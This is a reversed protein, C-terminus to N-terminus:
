QNVRNLGAYYILMWEGNMKAFRREMAYQGTKHMIREIVLASDVPLITSTFGSNAAIANQVVWNEETWRFNRDALTLSDANSPIGQIPFLIHAKQYTSDEHFQDYFTNFDALVVDVSEAETDTTTETTTSDTNCASLFLLAFLLFSFIRM